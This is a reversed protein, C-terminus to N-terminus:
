ITLIWIMPSVYCCRLTFLVSHVWTPYYNLDTHDDFMYVYGKYLLISYTSNLHLDVDALVITKTQCIKNKSKLMRISYMNCFDGANDYKSHKLKILRTSLVWVRYSILWLIRKMSTQMTCVHNINVAVIWVKHYM